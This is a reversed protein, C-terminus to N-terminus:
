FHLVIHKVWVLKNTANGTYVTLVPIVPLGETVMLVSTVTIEQGSPQYVTM